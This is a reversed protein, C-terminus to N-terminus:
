ALCATAAVIPAPPYMRVCNRGASKAAYVGRDAAMVLSAVSDFTDGDETAIGVSCTITLEQHNDRERVRAEDAVACRVVEAVTGAAVADTGPCVVAFEEGGYRFVEGRDGVAKRVTAAVVKLVRDGVAHGHVDNFTKFHDVDLFLISVPQSGTAAQFTEAVFTDFARRNRSGTLVDTTVEDVLQKNRAQLQSTQHQSRLTIQTLTENARALIEDPNGLDGTPLDFLRAMEGAQEHIERLMSDAEDGHMGFWEALQTRYTDLVGGTDEDRLFLEAARNGLAVSRVLPLLREGVGEPSEHYRIPAVLMPPFSWREALAGGVQAHDVGFTDRELACLAGHDTGAQQALRTYSHGLAQNMALMGVDQLLGGMFAEERRATRLRQSLSRAATATYLSRRWYGIHDFGADSQRKLDAVLSFGLALTKVASLGLVVLARSVTGITQSQGYFASNATRLIKTSLAPDHQLTDAIRQMNVDRQALNIVEVAISPLSPLRPSRLIKDLAGQNM